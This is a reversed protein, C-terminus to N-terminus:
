VTASAASTSGSPARPSRIPRRLTRMAPFTSNATAAANAAKAEVVWSSMAHRTTMPTPAAMIMGPVRDVMVEAKGGSRLALPTAIQDPKAAAPAIMPM